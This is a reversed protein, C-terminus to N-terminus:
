AFALSAAASPRRVAHPEAARARVDATAADEERGMEAPHREDRFLIFRRIWQVYARETRRSYYRLRMTNRVRDFLRPSPATGSPWGDPTEAVYGAGVTSDSSLRAPLTLNQM